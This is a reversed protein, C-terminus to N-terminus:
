TVEEPVALARATSLVDHVDRWTAGRAEMGEEVARLARIAAAYDQRLAVLEIIADKIVAYHSIAEGDLISLLEEETRGSM